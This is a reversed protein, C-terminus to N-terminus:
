YKYTYHWCENDKRILQGIFNLQVEPKNGAKLINDWFLFM